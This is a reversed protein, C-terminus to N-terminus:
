PSTTPIPEPTALALWRKDVYKQRIFDAMTADSLGEVTGPPMTAEFFANSRRNGVAEMSAIQEDNWDDLEVSRVRSIHTGLSRHIGSCRICIVIGLSWSAWKPDADRCDACSGNGLADEDRAIEVIRVANRFKSENSRSTPLRASGQSELAGRAGVGGGATTTSLSLPTAASAAWGKVADSIARDQASVISISDDVDGEDGTQSGQSAPMSPTTTNSASHPALLNPLSRSAAPLLPNPPVGDLPLFSPVDPIGLGDLRARESVADSEFGESLAFAGHRSPTGFMARGPVVFDEEGIRFSPVSPPQQVSRRKDKKSSASTKRTRGLSTHRSLFPAFRGVPSTPTSKAEPFLSSGLGSASADPGNLKSPDFHRVSSTGNLLSEVSKSITAVWELCEKESTTQYVRRLQPTLVEFCFRRDGGQRSIRATAYRLVIPAGHVSLSDTWRDYEVLQGESLVVWYRNWRHGGDGSVEHRQGAETAYLFGEKRRPHSSGASPSPNSASRQPLPSAPVALRAPETTAPLSSTRPFADSSAPPTRPTLPAGFALPPSHPFTDSTPSFLNASSSSSPLTSQIASSFSSKIFGKIRDRRRESSPEAGTSQTPSLSFHPFSTRRRHKAGRPTETSNPSTPRDALDLTSSRSPTRRPGSVSTSTSTSPLLSPSRLDPELPAADLLRDSGQPDSVFGLRLGPGEESEPDADNVEFGGPGDVNAWVRLWESVADEESAVLGEVFSFYEVRQQRFASVREVQKADAAALKAADPESKGLYQGLEDYFRKSDGEFAKRRDEVTKLRDIGGRLREGLERGRALEREAAVRKTARSRRLTQDYLGGKGLSDRARGSWGTAGLVDLADDVRAQAELTEHLAQESQEIEKALRKLAARLSTARRELSAIHARFLPGDELAPEPDLDRDPSPSRRRLRDPRPRDASSSSTPDSTMKLDHDSAPPQTGGPRAPNAPSLHEPSSRTPEVPPALPTVRERGAGASASAFRAHIPTALAAGQPPPPPPSM